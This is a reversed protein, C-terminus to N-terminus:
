TQQDIGFFRCFYSYNDMTNPQEVRRLHDLKKNRLQFLNASNLVSLCLFRNKFISNETQFKKVETTINVSITTALSLNETTFMIGKYNRLFEDRKKDNEINEKQITRAELEATEKITFEEQSEDFDTFLVMM